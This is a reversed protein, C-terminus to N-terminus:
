LPNVVAVYNVTAGLSNIYSIFANASVSDKWSRQNLNMPAQDATNVDERTVTIKIGDTNGATIESTIYSDLNARQQETNLELNTLTLYAM